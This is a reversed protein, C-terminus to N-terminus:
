FLTKCKVMGNKLSGYIIKDISFEENKLMEILKLAEKDLEDNDVGNIFLIKEGKAKGFLGKVDTIVRFYHDITITHGNVGKTLELYKDIRHVNEENIEKGLISINIIGVTKTTKGIIVPEFEEWAKVLKRKAGDGELIVVNFEQSIKNLFNLPLSKVKKGQNCLEGIFYTGIVDQKILESALDLNFELFDFADYSPTFMKTTTSVLVKMYRLEKSLMYLFSTKGGSGVISVVDGDKIDIFEKLMVIGKLDFAM